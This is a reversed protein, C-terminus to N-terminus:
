CFFLFVDIKILSIGRAIHATWKVIHDAGDLRTFGYSDHGVKRDVNEEFSLWKIFISPKDHTWTTIALRPNGGILRDHAMIENNHPKRRDIAADLHTWTDGQACDIVESLGRKVCTNSIEIWHVRTWAFSADRNCGFGM